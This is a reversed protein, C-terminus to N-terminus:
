AAVRISGARPSAQNQSAASARAAPKRGATSFYGRLRVAGLAGLGSMLLALGPPLPVPATYSFTAKVDSGWREGDSLGFAGRNFGANELEVSLRGGGVDLVLPATWDVSGWQLGLGRHGRTTGEVAGSAEGFDFGASLGRPVLDDAGVSAERTWIRFLNLSTSQGDGLSFSVAGGREARPTTSIVLGPDRLADGGVNWTGSFTAAAAAGPLALALLAATLLRNL